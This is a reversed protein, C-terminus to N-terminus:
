QELAKKEDYHYRKCTDTEEHMAYNRSAHCYGWPYTLGTEPNKLKAIRYHRCNKCIAEM